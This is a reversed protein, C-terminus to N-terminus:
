RPQWSLAGSGRVFRVLLERGNGDRRVPGPRRHRSLVALTGGDPSWALDPTFTSCVCRGDGVLTKLASGDPNMTVVRLRYRGIPPPGRPPDPTATLVALRQGTPSWRVLIVKTAGSRGPAVDTRPSGVETLETGDSRIM